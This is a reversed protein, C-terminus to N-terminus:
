SAPKQPKKVPEILQDLTTELRTQKNAPLRYAWDKVSINFVNASKSAEDVSGSAHLIVWKEQGRPIITATVVMGSFTKFDAGVSQGAPITLSTAPAVDDFNLGELTNALANVDSQSKVTMGAPIPTLVFVQEDPKTRAAQFPKGDAGHLAVQAIDAQAVDAVSRDIWDLPGTALDFSGRALWSQAEGPKRVYITAGAEGGPDAPDTGAHSKGVLLSALVVGSADRVTLQVARSDKDSIDDLDLRSYLSPRSTKADITELSALAALTERIPQPKVPYDGEAPAVWNAGKRKFAVTGDHRAIEIVAARDLEGAFGPVVLRGKALHTTPQHLIVAYGAGAVAAIALIFLTWVTIPRM